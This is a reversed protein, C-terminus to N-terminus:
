FLSRPTQRSEVVVISTAAAHMADADSPSNRSRCRPMPSCRPTSRRREVVLKRGQVYDKTANVCDLAIVTGNRTYVISFSRSAPDGRLITADHGSSLGITQLKLDYQHSWFWPVMDYDVDQGLIAKAAVTAQDNANQVSEVRVPLGDAYENTHLACDGIAFIDPLSTRCHSDVAVGNGGHAGADMLPGVAPIIGIGVIVLQAPVVEGDTLRVGTARMEGEICEVGVCLRVDVGHARHEAEYFRSLAEGAM